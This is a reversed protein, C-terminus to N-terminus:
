DRFLHMVTGLLQILAVATQVRGMGHLRRPRRPRVRCLRCALRHCRHPRNSLTMVTSGRPSALRRQPNERSSGTPQNRAFVKRDSSFPLQDLMGIAHVVAPVERVVQQNRKRAYRTRDLKRVLEAQELRKVLTHVQRVSLGSLKVALETNFVPNGILADVLRALGDNRQNLKSLQEDRIEELRRVLEIHSECLTSM